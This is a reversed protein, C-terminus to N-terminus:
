TGGPALVGLRAQHDGVAVCGLFASQRNRATLFQGTQEVPDRRDGGEPYQSIERDHRAGSCDRPRRQSLPLAPREGTSSRQQCRRAHCAPPSTSQRAAAAVAPSTAALRKRTPQRKSQQALHTTKLPMLVRASRRGLPSQWGLRDPSSPAVVPGAPREPMDVAGVRCSGLLQKLSTASLAVHGGAGRNAQRTPGVVRWAM